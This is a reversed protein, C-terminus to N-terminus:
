CIYDMPNVKSEYTAMLNLVLDANTIGGVEVQTRLRSTVGIKRERRLFVINDKLM